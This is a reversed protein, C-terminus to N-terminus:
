PRQERGGVHVVPGELVHGPVLRPRAAPEPAHRVPDPQPEVDIGTAEARGQERDSEPRDGPVPGAPRGLVRLALDDPSLDLAEYHTITVGEVLDETGPLLRPKTLRGRTWAFLDAPTRWEEVLVVEEGENENLRRALKAYVIGPQERLETLQARLLDNFPGVNQRPVRATLIRVIVRCADTASAGRPEPWPPDPTAIEECDPIRLSSALGKRRDSIAAHPAAPCPLGM